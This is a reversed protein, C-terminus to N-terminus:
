LLYSVGLEIGSWFSAISWLYCRDGRRQCVFSCNWLIWWNRLLVVSFDFFLISWVSLFDSAASFKILFLLFLLIISCYFPTLRSGFLHLPSHFRRLSQLKEQKTPIPSSILPPISSSSPKRTSRLFNLRWAVILKMKGDALRQSFQSKQKHSKFSLSFGRLLCITWTM